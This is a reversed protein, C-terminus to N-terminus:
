QSRWTFNYVISQVTGDLFTATVSFDEVDGEQTHMSFTAVMDYDEFYNMDSYGSRAVTEYTNELYSIYIDGVSITYTRNIYNMNLDENLLSNEEEMAFSSERVLDAGILDCWKGYSDGLTLPMNSRSMGVQYANTEEGNVKNVQLSSGGDHEFYSWAGLGHEVGDEEFGIYHFLTIDENTVFESVGDQLDRSEGLGVEPIESYGLTGIIEKLRPELLDYGMVKIDAIDFAPVNTMLNEFEAAAKLEEIKDIYMQFDIGHVKDRYKEILVEAADYYGGAILQEIYSRLCGGISEQVQVNEGDLELLKDCVALASEYDASQTFGEVQELYVEVLKAKIREDDSKEYGTQLTGIAKDLDGMSEYALAKGLYADVNMPDIEIAKNFEVVAQEYNQEELYRNGLDLQRSLRNAPINYISIGVILAALVVVIIGIAGWKKGNSKKLGGSGSKVPNLDSTMEDASMTGNMSKESM